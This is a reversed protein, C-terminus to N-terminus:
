GGHAGLLALLARVRAQEFRVCGQAAASGVGCTCDGSIAVPHISQVHRPAGAQKSVPEAGFAHTCAVALCMDVDYSGEHTASFCLLRHQPTTRAKAMANSVDGRGVIALVADRAQERLVSHRHAAQTCCISAGDHESGVVALM